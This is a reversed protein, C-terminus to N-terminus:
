FVFEAVPPEQNLLPLSLDFEARGTITKGTRVFVHAVAVGDTPLVAILRGGPKLAGLMAEPVSDLAGQVFIVDFKSGGLAAIDGARITANAIGLDKLTAEARAALDADAELGVVSSALGAIVATGYGTAAGIELVAEDSTIAALQLLKALKAPAMIFRRKVGQGLWHLDDSYAVSQRDAPVFRERPLRAMQALLTPETVGRTRIQNDVMTARLQEFHEMGTARGFGIM